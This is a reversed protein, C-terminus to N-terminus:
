HVRERGGLHTLQTLQGHDIDKSKYSSNRHFKSILQYFFIIFVEYNKM